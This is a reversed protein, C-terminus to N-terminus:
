KMIKKLAPEELKKKVELYNFSTNFPSFFPKFVEWLSLFSLEATQLMGEVDRDPVPMQLATEQVGQERVARTVLPKGKTVM